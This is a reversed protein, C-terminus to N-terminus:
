KIVPFYLFGIYGAKFFCISTFFGYTKCAIVKICQKGGQNYMNFFIAIFFWVKALVTM